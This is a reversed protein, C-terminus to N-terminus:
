RQARQQGPRGTSGHVRVPAWRRRLPVLLVGLGAADREVRQAADVHARQSRHEDVWGRSGCLSNFLSPETRRRVGTRTRWACEGGPVPGTPSVHKVDEHPRKGAVQIVVERDQTSPESNRNAISGMLGTALPGACPSLRAESPPPSSPPPPRRDSRGGDHPMYHPAPATGPVYEDDRAEGRGVFGAGALPYRPEHPDLYFRSPPGVRSGVLSPPSKGRHM